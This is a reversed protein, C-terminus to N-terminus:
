QEGGGIGIRIDAAVAGQGRERVILPNIDLELVDDFDTALASVRVIADAIADVDAPPRGRAGRLLGYGRIESIMAHAEEPTVPCLRFSVDKMVEVYIGGLGFLLLPGFTPDRNIGVIVEHGAPVMEQVTVGYVVAEPMRRRVGDMIADYAEALAQEDGIGVRIGGIDSKHLIDPSDVKLVVPYGVDRALSLASALDPANGGGPVTLGYARAVTAAREETIFASRERRARAIEATVADRDAAVEVPRPEPRRLRDAHAHMAQLTRVAREPFAFVPVGAERLAERAPRVADGGMLCGLTTKGAASAIAAVAAATDVAQTMAQPTLLLLLAHVNPDDYLLRAAAEYRDARADGLIDVPNYLAAAPPLFARLGEITERELAAMPVGLADCADTALIAPGGANTLVAVGRGRPLPQRSFAVALDFLDEVGDARVIGAKRFAADYAQESGALSGTHSSVARAGADSRGSKLAVLPKAASLRTAAEVFRPGHAVSELYAVVVKADDDTEWATMLDAESIDAKNGLSVFYSLGFGEGSAWDLIATGLAGSQSMFAIDGAPPAAPAFSANLRCPACVVGLCNPGLLRVGGEAAAAVLERELAAGEPGTEKFGASIVVAAPVGLTGCQRLVEAAAPSPVAVVALDPTEPLDLVSPYARLGAVEDATPNVPYVPGPFGGALLNDLVYRGVKGPERSAGVVAVSRPRLLGELM